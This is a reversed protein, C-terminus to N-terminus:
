IHRTHREKIFAGAVNPRVPVTHLSFTLPPKTLLSTQHANRASRTASTAAASGPQTHAHVTASSSTVTTDVRNTSKVAPAGACGAAAEAEVIRSVRSRSGRALRTAPKLPAAAFPMSAQQVRGDDLSSARRVRFPPAPRAPGSLSARRPAPNAVCRAHEARPAPAALIGALGSSAAIAILADSAEHRANPMASLRRSTQLLARRDLLGAHPALALSAGPVVAAMGVDAGRTGLPEDAMALRRRLAVLSRRHRDVM